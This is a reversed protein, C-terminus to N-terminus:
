RACSGLSGRPPSSGRAVHDVFNDHLAASSVTAVYLPVHGVGHEIHLGARRIGAWTALHNRLPVHRDRDGAIVLCPVTIEALRGEVDFDRMSRAAGEIHVPSATLITEELRAMTAADPMRHFAARLLTRQEDVTPHALADTVERPAFDIGRTSAPAFLVLGAPLDPEDLAVQLAIAAGLSHGVIVPDAISLAQLLAVLDLALEQITSREWRAPAESRGCGPLDVTLLIRDAQDVAAVIPDWARRDNQFGHVFVATTADATRPGRRSWAWELGRVRTSGLQEIVEHDDRTVGSLKQCPDPM